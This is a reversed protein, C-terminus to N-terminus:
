KPPGDTVSVSISFPVDVAVVGGDTNRFNKMRSAILQRMLADSYEKYTATIRGEYTVPKNTGHVARRVLEDHALQTINADAELYRKEFEAEERWEQLTNWSIRALDCSRQVMGLKWFAKLFREQKAAKARKFRESHAVEAKGKRARSRM